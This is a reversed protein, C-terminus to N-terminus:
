GQLKVLVGLPFLSPATSVASDKAEPFSQSLTLAGDAQQCYKALMGLGPDGLSVSANNLVTADSYLAVEGLAVPVFLRCKSGCGSQM